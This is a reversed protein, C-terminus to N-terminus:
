GSKGPCALSMRRPVISRKSVAHTTIPNGSELQRPAIGERPDFPPLLCASKTRCEAGEGGQPREV